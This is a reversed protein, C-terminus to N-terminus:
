ETHDEDAFVAAKFWFEEIAQVVKSFQGFDVPKPIYCNAHLNYARIVDEDARSTTLILVPIRKLSEEAKIESLVERGHKLPLNWDLLILDPRPADAYQGDRHLFSIADLGTPAVHLHSPLTAQEFAEQTFLVDTPSDEVLLIEVPRSLEALHVSM